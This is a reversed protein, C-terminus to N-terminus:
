GTPLAKRRCQGASECKQGFMARWNALGKDDGLSDKAFWQYSLSQMAHAMLGDLEGPHNIYRFRMAATLLARREGFVGLASLFKAVESASVKGLRESM